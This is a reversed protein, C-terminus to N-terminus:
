AGSTLLFSSLSVLQSFSLGTLLSVLETPNPENKKIATVLVDLEDKTLTEMSPNVRELGATYEKFLLSIEDATMRDLIYETIKPDNAGVDSTSALVLTKKALTSHETLRNRALEPLSAVVTATDTVVAVSESISLPRVGLCFSRVQINFRYDIGQRMAVLQEIEDSRPM